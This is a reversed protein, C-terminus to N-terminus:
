RKRANCGFDRGLIGTVTNCTPCPRSSWQHPDKELLGAVLEAVDVNKLNSELKAVRDELTPATVRNKPHHPCWTDHDDPLQCNHLNSPADCM